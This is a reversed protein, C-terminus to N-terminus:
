KAFSKDVSRDMGSVHEGTARNIRIGCRCCRCQKPHADYTGMTRHARWAAISRSSVAFLISAVTPDRDACSLAMQRLAGGHSRPDFRLAGYFHRPAPLKAMAEHFKREFFPPALVFAVTMMPSKGSNYRCEFLRRWNGPQPLLHRVANWMFHRSDHKLQNKCNCRRRRCRQALWQAYQAVRNTRDRGVLFTMALVGGIRLRAAALLFAETEIDGVPGTWDLHVFGFADAKSHRIAERVDGHWIQASMKAAESLGHVDLDVAVIPGQWVLIEKLIPVEHARPGCLVLAKSDCKAGVAVMWRCAQSYLAARAIKKGCSDGRYSARM